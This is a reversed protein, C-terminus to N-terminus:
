GAGAATTELRASRLSNRSEEADHGRGSGSPHNEAAEVAARHSELAAVLLRNVSIGTEASRREYWALLDSGVPFRIAKPNTM